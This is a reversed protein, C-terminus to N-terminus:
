IKSLLEFSEIAVATQLKDEKRSLVICSIINILILIIIVQYFQEKREGLMLILAM